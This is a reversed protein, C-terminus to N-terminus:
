LRPNCTESKPKLRTAGDSVAIEVFVQPVTRMFGTDHPM